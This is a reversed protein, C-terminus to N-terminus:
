SKPLSAWNVEEKAELSKPLPPYFQKLVCVNPNGQALSSAGLEGYGDAFM